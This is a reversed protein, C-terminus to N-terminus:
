AAEVMEGGKVFIDVIIERMGSQAKATISYNGNNENVSMVTATTAEMRRWISSYVETCIKDGQKLETVKIMKTM